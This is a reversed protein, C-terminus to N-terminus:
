FDEFFRNISSSLCEERTGKPSKEKGNGDGKLAKKVTQLAAGATIRGPSRQQIRNIGLNELRGPL